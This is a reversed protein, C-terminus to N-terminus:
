WIHIRKAPDLWMGDNENINFTTYFDALNRVQINARLTNPAHVDVNLLLKQRELSSKMGWVRAWNCFFEKLNYNPESKAAELACSLGGADAINESVVLKGNVPGAETVLGEFQDIMAQALDEFYALDEPTWWNNLNGFEDFQAGNNDFAHSIEHAIVAGIGGFNASSSQKLSYFPAQLIAAPFVIINFSPNYYANVMHAPMEWRTRDVKTNWRSYHKNLAIKTFEADNALLSKEENVVFELYLPNLKDPYGVDIGLTNLKVIAQQRTKPSLWTNNELREKYVAIMKEVMAYVDAKAQAGFHKHAYYLGVVQDFQSTALYYAAKQDNMAEKSGSLARNYIGATVRMEHTTYRSLAILMRVLMWSKYDSFTEPNILQTFAEYYAPESVIIESPAQGILESVCFSLDLDSSFKTFDAFTYKNYSKVYDARETSDKQHPALSADFRLAGAIQKQAFDASFGALEFLKAVMQQYINLLSEQAPNDAQYYTKDPLILSPVEAYLTYLDTNKMDPAVHFPFATPYGAMTLSRLQNQYDALDKLDIIRQLYPLIPTAGQSERENFDLALHYYKIFEALGPENPIDGTTLMEQFDAMLDQEIQDALDAFGGTTAKDAPIVADKLWAGNVAQYLDDKILDENVPYIKQETM